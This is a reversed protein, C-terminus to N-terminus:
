VGILSTVCCLDMGKGEWLLTMRFNMDLVHCKLTKDNHDYVFSNIWLLVEAKKHCSLGSVLAQLLQISFASSEAPVRQEYQVYNFFFAEKEVRIQIYKERFFPKPSFLFIIRLIYFFRISFYLFLIYFFRSPKIQIAFVTTFNM